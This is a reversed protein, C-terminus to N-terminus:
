LGQKQLLPLITAFSCMLWHYNRVQYKGERVISTAGSRLQQSGPYISFGRLQWCEGFSYHVTLVEDIRSITSQPEPTHM